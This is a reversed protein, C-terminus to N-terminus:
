VGGRELWGEDVEKMKEVLFWLEIEFLGSRLLFLFFFSLFYSNEGTFM